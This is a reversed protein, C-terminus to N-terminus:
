PRQMACYPAEFTLSGITVTFAWMGIRGPIESELAPGPPTGVCAERSDNDAMLARRGQCPRGPSCHSAEHLCWAPGFSNDKQIPQPSHRSHAHNNEMHESGREISHGRSRASHGVTSEQSNINKEHNRTESDRMGDGPRGHGGSSDPSEDGPTNTPEIRRIPGGHRHGHDNCNARGEGQTASRARKRARLDHEDIN